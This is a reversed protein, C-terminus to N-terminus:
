CGSRQGLIGRKEVELSPEEIDGGPCLTRNTDLV